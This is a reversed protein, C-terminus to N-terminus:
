VLVEAIFRAVENEDAGDPLNTLLANWAKAIEQLCDDCIVDDDQDSHLEGCVPCEVTDSLDESGCVPCFADAWMVGGHGESGNDYEPRWDADTKDFVHGCDECIWKSM